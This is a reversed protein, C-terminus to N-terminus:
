VQLYDHTITHILHSEESKTVHIYAIYVFEKHGHLRLMVVVLLVVVFYEIHTYCTNKM